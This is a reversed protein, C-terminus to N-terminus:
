DVLNIEHNKLFSELCIKESKIQKAIDVGVYRYHWPEYIVGTIATDAKPYRLIFGYEAAHDNLWKYAKTDAFGEDLAQYSKTVIDAALGTQHESTGPKAVVKAAAITAQEDTFKKDLYFKKKKNFLTEQYEYTRYGSCVILSIDDKKAAAIMEKMAQNVRSDMKIKGQVVSLKEPKSKKTLANSKNVLILKWAETKKIEIVDKQNATATAQPLTTKAPTVSKAPTVPTSAPTTAQASAINEAHDESLFYQYLSYSGGTLLISIVVISIFRRRMQQARSRRKYKKEHDLM